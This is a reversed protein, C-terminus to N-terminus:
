LKYEFVLEEQNTDDFWEKGICTFGLKEMLKVSAINNPDASAFIKKVKKHRKALRICAKVAETAYGKGWSQKRFHAIIEIKKVTADINFGAAGIIEGSSKEQLCYVSLGYEKHCNQYWQIIQPIKEKAIGGGSLKMVENSGWIKIFEETHQQDFVKILLRETEYVVM